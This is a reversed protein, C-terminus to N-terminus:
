QPITIPTQMHTRNHEVLKDQDLESTCQFRDQRDGVLSAWNERALSWAAWLLVTVVILTFAASGFALSSM